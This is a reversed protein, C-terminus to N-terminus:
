ASGEDDFSDSSRYQLREADSKFDTELLCVNLVLGCHARQSQRKVFGIEQPESIGINEVSLFPMDCRDRVRRELVM